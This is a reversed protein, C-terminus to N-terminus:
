EHIIPGNSKLKSEYSYRLVEPANAGRAFSIRQKWAQKLEELIKSYKEESIINFLEEPDNKLNYLEEYVPLEGNVPGEVFSRYVAIDRDHVYYLMDMRNVGFPGALDMLENSKLNNNKYYRIYKWEKNQVAECRPNGFTNSWLNETYLFEHVGKEEGEIIPKLSKGQFSKPVEIGAYDLMTPAIDITQVLENSIIRRAKRPALPNYVIMPVKTCVEYCTAKGSMGQEGWFLGHDSTFVIITNKDLGKEKLTKILNGVLRDVGTVAQMHRIIRERMTEATYTFDYGLQRAEAFMLDEPLKQKVIDKKAIYNNPLPVEIDRYLSKYIEPDSERLEMRSSSAGHPLNFCLSLCFPKDEPLNTIFSKAGELNRENSFFDDVGENLIEAQTESKAGRFIKHKEKPYFFLHGNSGYWYDFSNQMLENQYGEKGVPSHNKGIYGTYYGNERMVVPYSQKWAEESVSTGSNFNVGHKREFQSLLISVRSPTCIASTIHANTFLIGESALKDLNPTQIIENGNAGLLDFRHDDTLIFVFNPKSQSYIKQFLISFMLSLFFLFYTNKVLGRFIIFREKM